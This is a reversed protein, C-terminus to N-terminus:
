NLNKDYKTIKAAKTWEDIKTTVLSQKANSLLTSSIDAKVEELKKVPYETKAICKIIHYGYQTQVPDSIQGVKLKFAAASFTTDMNTDGYAFQAIDGGSDKSGTDTSVEKAVKAFDEGKDVRAKAKTAADLTTVLIHAVHITDAQTTYSLQNADYYTKIQADTVKVDKTLSDEVKGIIIQTKLYAKLSTDTFGASTLASKFTADDTYTKKITDYKANVQTTLEADTPMLNLEKAKQLFLKEDILQTLVSSKETAIASTADANTSYNDGYTSKIQAIYQTMTPNNEVDSRIIKDSNVKAVVSNAIAQPTKAIMNCGVSSIAFISILAVGLIKKINKVRFEEM